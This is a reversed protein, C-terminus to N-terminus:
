GEVLDMKLEARERVSLSKDWTINDWVALITGIGLKQTEM